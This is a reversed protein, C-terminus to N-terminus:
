VFCVFSGIRRGVGAFNWDSNYRYQVCANASAHLFHFLESVIVSLLFDETPFKIVASVQYLLSTAKRFRPMGPSGREEM